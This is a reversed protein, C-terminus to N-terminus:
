IMDVTHLTANPQVQVSGQNSPHLRTSIAPQELDPGYLTVNGAPCSDTYSPLVGM